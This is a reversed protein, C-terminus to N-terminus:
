RLKISPPYSQFRDLSKRNVAQFSKGITAIFRQQSRIIDVVDRHKAKRVFDLAIESERWVADLPDNRLFFGAILPALGYCAYVLDDTEIGARITARLLEVASAIPQTWLAIHGMLHNIKAKWTIEILDSALKVFRYGDTYRHFVPGLISGFYGCALASAGSTGHRIGIKVMCCIQFCGLRSDTFYGASTLSALVELAAQVEPDTM